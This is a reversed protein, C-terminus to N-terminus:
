WSNELDKPEFSQNREVYYSNGGKKLQLKDKNFLRSLLAVPMLLIFFVATLLIKSSFFGLIEALKFWFWTIKESLWESFMGILGLVIATWLLYDIRFFYFLIVFGTVITLITELNKAKMKSFHIFLPHLLV